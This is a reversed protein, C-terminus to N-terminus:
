CPSDTYGMVGYGELFVLHTDWQIRPDYGYASVKLTQETVEPATPWPALLARCHAILATRDALEVVTEMSEDLGGRHQRFKM